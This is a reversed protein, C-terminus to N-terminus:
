KEMDLKKQYEQYFVQDSDIRKRERLESDKIVQYYDSKVITFEMVAGSIVGIALAIIYYSRPANTAKPFAGLAYNRSVTM